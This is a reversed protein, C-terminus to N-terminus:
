RGFTFREEVLLVNAMSLTTLEGIGAVLATTQM